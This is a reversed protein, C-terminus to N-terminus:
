GRPVSTYQRILGAERLVHFHHTATSKRVPLEITGCALDEAAAYVDARLHGAELGALRDAHHGRERHVVVADVGLSPATPGGSM